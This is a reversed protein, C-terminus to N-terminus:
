IGGAKKESKATGGQGNQETVQQSVQQPSGQPQDISFVRVQAGPRIRQMGEVIVRDGASLGTAVLWKDGIPRDLKLVRLAVRDDQGVVFVSPVGKADRSVAQQPVMLAQEAIGEQIRARVFMGPLLLSEPNPFVIRLIVSGTSQDVTVDRFQLTGHMPYESGDKLYLLVKRQGKGEVNLQGEEFKNKLRLLETISQPVDVYIPDIQQITALAMQQYATVLAGDTVNSKGIRGSIPATVRTYHLNIRATQLAARWYEVDAEATRLASERDDYDQQSVAKEALLGKYREARSKIAPLTAESKALSAKANDYSAQFPAPDIQYLEQGQQVDSGERFLRQQIIGNVQPRIEAIRYASTRGPLETMLVVKEPQITVTAVEPPPPAAAQKPKDCGSLMSTLFIMFFLIAYNQRRFGHKGAKARVPKKM